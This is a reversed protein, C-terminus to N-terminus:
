YIQEGLAIKLKLLSVSYDIKTKLLVLKSESVSTSSDLLDLNTIAGAEFNTKALSYAEQSQELQLESQNVKKLASEANAKSEVVENVISRRTLETEQVNGQIDTQAQIKNFKTRNADFLPVKLSVGVAYNLSGADQLKANFYGNKYGGTGFFNLSPNNQINIMKMHTDALVSKQHEIKMESRHDFAFTFLSDNSALIQPSLLEKKVTLKTEQPKGLFSNLQSLQVELANVLDTKQNEIASIRVKTTLVEYNTASGTAVKKQVFQLHENLTALEENKIKIAEQLFVISYFNGVMMGSLKQKLQDVSLGVLEKSQKAFTINKETKGFDYISESVNLAASYMDPPFLQFTGLGPMSLSTTPGLLTYSGTADINPLYATKALGIKADSSEIDTQAKKIAPYNHIVENLIQSLSLSDTYVNNTKQGHVMAFPMLFLLITLKYISKM